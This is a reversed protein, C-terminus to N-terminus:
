NKLLADQCFSNLAKFFFIGRGLFSGLSIVRSVLFADHVVRSHFAWWFSPLTSFVITLRNSPINPLSQFQHKWLILVLGLGPFHMKTHTGVLAPGLSLTTGKLRSPLSPLSCEVSTRAADRRRTPPNSRHCWSGLAEPLEMCWGLLRWPQLCRLCLHLFCTNSGDKPFVWPVHAPM